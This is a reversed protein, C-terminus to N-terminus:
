KKRRPASTLKGVKSSSDVGIVDLFPVEDNSKTVNGPRAQVEFTERSGPSSLTKQDVLHSDKDSLLESKYKSRILQNFADGVSPSNLMQLYDSWAVDLYGYVQLNSAFQVVLYGRDVGPTMADFGIKHIMSSQVELM